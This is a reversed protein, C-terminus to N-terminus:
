IKCTVYFTMDFMDVFSIRIESMSLKIYLFMFCNIASSQIISAIVNTQKFSTNLDLKEIHSDVNLADSLSEFVRSQRLLFILKGPNWSESERLTSLM